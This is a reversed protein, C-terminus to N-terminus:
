KETAALAAKAARATPEYEGEAAAKLLKRQPDTLRDKGLRGLGSAALAAARTKPRKELVETLVDALEALELNSVYAALNAARNDNAAALEMRVEKDFAQPDAERMVKAQVLHRYAVPNAEPAYAWWQHLSARPLTPYCFRGDEGTPVFVADRERSLRGLAMGARWQQEESGTLTIQRIAEYVAQGHEAALATLKKTADERTRYERDELLKALRDIEDLVAKAAAKPKEVLLRPVLPPANVRLDLAFGKAGGNDTVKVAVCNKQGPILHPTLDIVAAAGRHGWAVNSSRYVGAKEGNVFLDAEDDAILLLEARRIAKPADFTRRLAFKAGQGHWVWQATSPVGFQNDLTYHAGFDAPGNMVAVPTWKADDFDPQDWGAPPAAIGKWTADTVVIVGDKDAKVPPPPVPPAVPRVPDDATRSGGEYGTPRGGTLPPTLPPQALAASSALLIVGLASRVPLM